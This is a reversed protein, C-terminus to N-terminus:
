CKKININLKGKKNIQSLTDEQKNSHDPNYNDVHYKWFRRDGIRYDEHM